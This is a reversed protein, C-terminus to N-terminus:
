DAELLASLGDISRANKKGKYSALADEGKKHLWNSMTPREALLQMNPVGYGCSTSVREIEIEIITRTGFHEVDFGDLLENFRKTSPEHVWGKGHIRVIKPKDSFSAFMVVIRQNERLHAVTEIGSGVYDLYAATKSDIVRFTGVGGKPSCNVHGHPSLPATAVFYVPQIEMFSIIEQTISVAGM